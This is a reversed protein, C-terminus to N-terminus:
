KDNGVTGCMPRCLRENGTERHWLQQLFDTQKHFILRFVSLLKSYMWKIDNFKIQVSISANQTFYEGLGIMMERTVSISPIISAPELFRILFYKWQYKTSQMRGTQLEELRNWADKITQWEKQGYVAKKNAVEGVQRTRRLRCFGFVMMCICFCSLVHMTLDLGLYLVCGTKLNNLHELSKIVCFTYKKRNIRTQKVILTASGSGGSGCTKPGGPDPDM